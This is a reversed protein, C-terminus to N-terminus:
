IYSPTRAYEIATFNRWLFYIHCFVLYSLFVLFGLDFSLIIILEAQPGYRKMFQVIHGGSIFLLTKLCVIFCFFSYYNRRGICCGLWKCHHDFDQVCNDCRRCHNTKPPIFIKCIDCYRLDIAEHTNIAVYPILNITNPTPLM